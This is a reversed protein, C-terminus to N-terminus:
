GTGARFLPYLTQFLLKGRVSVPEFQGFLSVMHENLDYEANFPYEINNFPLFGIRRYQGTNIDFLDVERAVTEEGDIVTEDEFNIIVNDDSANMIRYYELEEIEVEEKKGDASIRM